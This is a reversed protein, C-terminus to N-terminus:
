LSKAILNLFCHSFAWDYYEFKIIYLFFILSRLRRGYISSGNRLIQHILEHLKYLWNQCWCATYPMGNSLRIWLWVDRKKDCGERQYYIEFWLLHVDDNNWKWRNSDFWNCFTPAYRTTKSIGFVLIVMSHPLFPFGNM